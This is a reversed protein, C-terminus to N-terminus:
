FIKLGNESVWVLWSVGGGGGIELWCMLSLWLYNDGVEVLGSMNRSCHSMWGVWPPPHSSLSYIYVLLTFLLFSVKDGYFALSPKGSDSLPLFFRGVSAVNQIAIFIPRFIGEVAAIACAIIKNKNHKIKM